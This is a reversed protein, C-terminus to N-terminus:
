AMACVLLRLLPFHWVCDLLGGCACPSGFPPRPDVFAAFVRAQLLAATRESLVVAALRLSLALGANDREHRGDGHLADDVLTVATFPRHHRDCLSLVVQSASGSETKDLRVSQRIQFGVHRRALVRRTLVARRSWFVMWQCGTWLLVDTFTTFLVKCGVPVSTNWDDRLSVDRCDAVSPRQPGPGYVPRAFSASLRATHRQM